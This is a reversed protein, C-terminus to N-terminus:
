RIMPVTISGDMLFLIKAERGKVELARDLANVELARDLAHQIDSFPRMFVREVDTDPLDTFAWMQAWLAVEAMKAAKHYGLEYGWKTHEL